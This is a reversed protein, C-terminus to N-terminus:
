RTARTLTRHDYRWGAREILDMFVSVPLGVVGYYDGDISDVLAAGRGQIGYAGAKDLPEGTAVYGAISAADYRRFRVVTRALGSVVGHGGALALGSLVEHTRGCLAALMREAEGASAPKGLVAGAAVVVTDGGVVLSDPYELAVAQAKARALREVHEAPSEGELYAEDVDPTHVVPELGLQRLVAARRPSGSALVLTPSKGSPARAPPGPSM